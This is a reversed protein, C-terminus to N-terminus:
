SAMIDAELVPADMGYGYFTDICQRVLVSEILDLGLLM